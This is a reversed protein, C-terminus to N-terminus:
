INSHENKTASLDTPQQIHQKNTNTIILLLLVILPLVSNFFQLNDAIRTSDGIRNLLNYPILLHLLFAISVIRLVRKKSYFWTIILPLLLLLDYYKHYTFLLTGIIGWNLLEFPTLKKRYLFFTSVVIVLIIIKLVMWSTKPLGILAFVSEIQTNSMAEFTYPFEIDNPNYANGVQGQAQQFYASILAQGGLFFYIAVGAAGIMYFLMTKRKEFFIAPLSAFAITPKLYLLFSYLTQVVNSRQKPAKNFILLLINFFFPSIQGVNILNVTPKFAFVGLILIGIGLNIGQKNLCQGILFCFLILNLLVFIKIFMSAYTFSIYTIPIFLKFLLNPYLIGLTPLGPQINQNLNEAKRIREWEIKVLSDNYPNQNSKTLVAGLYINRFDVTEEADKTFSKQRTLQILSTILLVGIILVKKYVSIGPIEFLKTLKNKNIM